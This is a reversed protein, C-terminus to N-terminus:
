GFAAGEAVVDADIRFGRRRDLDGNRHGAVRVDLHRRAAITGGLADGQGEVGPIPLRRLRHGDRRVRIRIALVVVCGDGVGDHGLFAGVFVLAHTDGRDVDADTVVVLRSDGHVGCVRQHDVFAAARSVRHDQVGLGRPVYDDIQNHAAPRADADVGLVEGECWCVVAGLRHGDAGSLVVGVGDVLRGGDAVGDGHCCGRRLVLVRRGYADVGDVDGHPVVIRGRHRQEQVFGRAVRADGLVAACGRDRRREVDGYAAVRRDRNGGGGCVLPRKATVVLLVSVIESPCVSLAPVTM